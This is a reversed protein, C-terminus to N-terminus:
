DDRVGRDVSRVIRRLKAAEERLDALAAALEPSTTGSQGTAVPAPAELGDEEPDGLGSSRLRKLGVLILDRIAEANDVGRFVAVHLVKGENEDGGAGVTGSETDGGGATRVLLDSIGLVRQLPNQRISLNQINAFTMTQERISRVGERIRLSRDTVLYWRQSYDLRVMAATIPLLAVYALLGWTEITFFLRSTLIDFASFPGLSIHNLVAESNPISRWGIAFALGVAAAIQTVLWHLQRLRLFNASPHFIRTSGESGEPATPSAPVRLLRGALGEIRELMPVREPLM